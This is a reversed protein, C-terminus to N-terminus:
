RRPEIVKPPLLYWKGDRQVWDEIFGCSAGFFLLGKGRLTVSARAEEGRGEIGIISWGRIRRERFGHDTMKQLVVVIFRSLDDDSLFYGRLSDRTSYSDIEKSVLEGHLAAIRDELGPPSALLLLPILTLCSRMM